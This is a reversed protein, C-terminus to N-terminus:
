AGAGQTALKTATRRKPPRPYCLAFYLASNILIDGVLVRISSLEFKRDVIALLPILVVELMFISVWFLRLFITNLPPPKLAGKESAKDAASCEANWMVCWPICFFGWVVKLWWADDGLMLGCAVLGYGAWMCQCALWYCSRGLRDMVFDALKQFIREVLWGEAKLM